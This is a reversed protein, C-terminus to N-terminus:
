LRPAAKAAFRRALGCPAAISLVRGGGVPLYLMPKGFTGCYATRDAVTVARENRIQARLRAVSASEVALTM